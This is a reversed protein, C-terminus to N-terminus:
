QKSHGDETRLRTTSKGGDHSQYIRHLLLAPTPASCMACQDPTCTTLVTQKEDCSQQLHPAHVLHPGKNHQQQLSLRRSCMSAYMSYIKELSPYSEIVANNAVNQM